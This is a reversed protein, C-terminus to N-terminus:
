YDPHSHHSHLVPKPPSIKLGEFPRSAAQDEGGVGETEQTVFVSHQALRVRESGSQKTVNFRQKRTSAQLITVLCLLPTEALHNEALYNINERGEVQKEKM